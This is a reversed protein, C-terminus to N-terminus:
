RSTERHGPELAKLASIVILCAKWAAITGALSVIGIVLRPLSTHILGALAFAGFLAVALGLLALFGLEFRLRRAFPDGHTTKGIAEGAFRLLLGVGLLGLWFAETSRGSAFLVGTAVLALVALTCLLVLDQNLPRMQSRSIFRQAEYLREIRKKNVEFGEARLMARIRRYGYRPHRQALANMRAVLRREFAPQVPRYRHTSRYAGVLICARRESLKPHRRRLFAVADRRRAPSVM